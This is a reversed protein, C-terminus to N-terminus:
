SSNSLNVSTINSSNNIGWNMHIANTTLVKFNEFVSALWSYYIAGAQKIGDWTSFNLGRGGLVYTFSFYSFLLLIIIFIAFFRHRFLVEKRKLEIMIWIIVIAIIIGVLAISIQM